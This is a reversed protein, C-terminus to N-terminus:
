FILSYVISKKRSILEDQIYTLGSKSIFRIGTGGTGVNEISYIVNRGPEISPAVDLPKLFLSFGNTDLDGGLHPDTDDEVKHLVPNVAIGYWSTGDSTLEWRSNNESWRIGVTPRTGRNAEIGITLGVFDGSTAGTFGSNLTIVNDKITSNVTEISSTTGRVALNGSIVVQDSILTLTTNVGVTELTLDGDTRKTSSM